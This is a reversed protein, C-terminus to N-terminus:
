RPNAIVVLPIDRLMMHRWVVEHFLLCSMRQLHCIGILLDGYANYDRGTKWCDLRIGNTIRPFLLQYVSSTSRGILRRLFSSRLANLGPESEIAGTVTERGESVLHMNVAVNFTTPLYKFWKGDEDEISTQMCLERASVVRPMKMWTSCVHRVAERTAQIRAIFLVNM